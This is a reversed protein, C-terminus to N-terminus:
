FICTQVDDKRNQYFAKRPLFSNINGNAVPISQSKLFEWPTTLPFSTEAKREDGGGRNCCKFIIFNHIFLPLLFGEVISFDVAPHRPAWGFYMHQGQFHVSLFIPQWKSQQYLVLRGAIKVVAYILFFHEDAFFVFAVWGVWLGNERKIIAGGASPLVAQIIYRFVSVGLLETGPLWICSWSKPAFGSWLYGGVEVCM